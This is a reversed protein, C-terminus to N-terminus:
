TNKDRLFPNGTSYADVYAGEEGRLCEIHRWLFVQRHYFFFTHKVLGSSCSLGM